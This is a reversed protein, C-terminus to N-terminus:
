EQSLEAIRKIITEYETSDINDGTLRIYENYYDLAQTNKNSKDYCLALYYIANTNEPSNVLVNKFDKIGKEYEQTDYYVIGRNILALSYDAQIELAKTYYKEANKYDKLRYYEYGLNNHTYVYDDKYILSYKYDRIAEQISDFYDNVYARNFYYYYNQDDLKVLQNFDIYASDYKELDIYLWGRADLYDPNNPNLELAMTYYNVAKQYENNDKATKALEEYDPYYDPNFDIIKKYYYKAMDIQGTKLLIKRKQELLDVEEGNEAIASDIYMMSQFYNNTKYYLNSLYEYALGTKKINLSQRLYKEAKSTENKEIYISGLINLANYADPKKDIYNELAKIAQVTDELTLYANALYYYAETKSSDLELAKKFYKISLDLKDYYDFNKVAARYVAEADTTDVQGSVWYSLKNFFNGKEKRQKEDATYYSVLYALAITFLIALFKKM